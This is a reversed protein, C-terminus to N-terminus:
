THKRCVCLTMNERSSIHLRLSENWNQDSGGFPFCDLTSDCAMQFIWPCFHFDTACVCCATWLTLTVWSPQLMSSQMSPMTLRAHKRSMSMSGPSDGTDSMTWKLRADHKCQEYDLKTQKTQVRAMQRGRNALQKKESDWAQKKGSAKTEQNSIASPWERVQSNQHCEDTAPQPM